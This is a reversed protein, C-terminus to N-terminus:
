EPSPRYGTDNAATIWIKAPALLKPDAPIYNRALEDWYYCEVLKQNFLASAAQAFQDESVEETLHRSLEEGITAFSEIDAAVLDLLEDLLTQNM